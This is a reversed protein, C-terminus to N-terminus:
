AQPEHSPSSGIRAPNRAPFEACTPVTGPDANEHQECDSLGRLDRHSEYHLPPEFREERRWLDRPRPYSIPPARVGCGCPTVNHEASQAMVLLEWCLRSGDCAVRDGGARRVAAVGALLQSSRLCCGRASPLAPSTPDSLPAPARTGASVLAWPCPNRQRLPGAALVLVRIRGAPAPAQMAVLASTPRLNPPSSRDSPQATRTADHM